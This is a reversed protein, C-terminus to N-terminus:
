NGGKVFSNLAPNQFVASSIAQTLASVMEKDNQVGAIHNTVKLNVNTDGAGLQAGGATKPAGTLWEGLSALMGLPGATAGFQDKNKAIDASTGGIKSADRYGQMKAQDAPLDGLLSKEGHTYKYIQDLANALLVIAAVYPGLPAFAATIALAIAQFAVKLRNADKSGLQGLAKNFQSSLEGLEIVANRLTHVFDTIPAALNNAITKNSEGKLTLWFQTWQRNLKLLEQQEKGTLMMEKRLGAFGVTGIRLAAFMDDSIGLTSAMTRANGIEKQDNGIARLKKQIEAMMEIPNNSQNLGFYVAGAPVGQGLRLASQASQLGKITSAMNEAKVDNIEAWYGWKQLEQTSLGTAGAFNKLEVASLVARRTIEELAVVAGFIGAKLEWSTDRAGALAGHVGTLADKTVRAGKIGLQIFLEAIKM